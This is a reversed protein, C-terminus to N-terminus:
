RGQASTDLDLAAPTFADAHIDERLVGRARLLPIVADVMAPPGFLHACHGSLDDHRDAIVEDPTGTAGSWHPEPQQLAILPTLAPDEEAIAHVEEMPVLSQANADGHILEIPRRVGSRRMGLIIARAPGLGTGGTILLLPRPDHPRVWADGLPGEFQWREGLGLTDFVYQSFDGGVHRLWLTIRADGLDPSAISLDRRRGDPMVIRIYQGERFRFDSGADVDLTVGRTGPALDQIASVTCPHLARRPRFDIASM